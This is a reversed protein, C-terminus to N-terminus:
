CYALCSLSKVLNKHDYQIFSEYMFSELVFVFVLDKFVVVENKIQPSAEM